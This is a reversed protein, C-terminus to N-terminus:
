YFLAQCNHSPMVFVTERSISEITGIFTHNKCVNCRIRTHPKLDAFWIRKLDKNMWYLKVIKDTENIFYCLQPQGERYVIEKNPSTANIFEYGDIKHYEKLKNFSNPVSLLKKLKLPPYAYHKKFTYIFHDLSNFGYLNALNAISIDETFLSNRAETLKLEILFKKYSINEWYKFLDTLCRDHIRFKKCIDSKLLQKSLNMHIYSQIERFKFRSRSIARKNKQWKKDLVLQHCLTLYYFITYKKHMSDIERKASLMTMEINLNLLKKYIESSKYPIYMYDSKGLSRMELALEDLEFVAEFFISEKSHSWYINHGQGLIIITPRKLEQSLNNISVETEGEIHVLIRPFGKSLHHMNLNAFKSEFIQIEFIESGSSLVTNLVDSIKQM